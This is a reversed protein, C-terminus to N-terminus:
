CQLVYFDVGEENPQEAPVVFNDGVELVDDLSEGHLIQIAFM